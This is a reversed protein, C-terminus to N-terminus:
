YQQDCKPEAFRPRHRQKEQNRKGGQAFEHGEDIAATAIIVAHHHTEVQQQRHLIIEDIVAPVAHEANEDGHVPKQHQRNDGAQATLGGM